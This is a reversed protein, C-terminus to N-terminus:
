GHIVGDASLTDSNDHSVVSGLVAVEGDHFEEVGHDLLGDAEVVGQQAPLGVLLGGVDASEAAKGM